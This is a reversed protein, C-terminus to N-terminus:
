RRMGVFWWWVRDDRVGMCEEFGGFEVGLEGEDLFVESGFSHSQDALRREWGVKKFRLDGLDVVQEVRAPLKCIQARQRRIVAWRRDFPFAPITFPPTRPPRDSALM